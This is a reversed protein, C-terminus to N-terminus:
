PAAAGAVTAVAAGVGKLINAFGSFKDGAKDASDAADKLPKDVKKVEDAAEDAADGTDSLGKEAPEPIVPSEVQREALNQGKDRDFLDLVLARLEGPLAVVILDYRIHRSSTLQIATSMPGFIPISPSASNRFDSLSM